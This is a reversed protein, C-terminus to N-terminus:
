HLDIINSTTLDCNKMLEIINPYKNLLETANLDILFVFRAKDESVVGEVGTLINKYINEGKYFYLTDTKIHRVVPYNSM